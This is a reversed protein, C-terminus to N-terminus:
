PLSALDPPITREGALARAQALAAPWAAPNRLARFVRLQLLATEFDRTAWGAVGEAVVSARQFDRQRMLWAVYSQTVLVLDAPVREREARALADEFAARAAPAPGDAVREAHALAAYLHATPADDAAAWAQLGALTTDAAAAKDQALQARLLTLRVLGAERPLQPQPLPAALAAAAEQEALAANGDVLAQRAAIAQARALATADGQAEADSRVQALLETAAQRLGNAFLAEVRVLNVARRRLPDPVKDVLDRLQAESALAAAPDLLALQVQTLNARAHLEASYAHFMAFRDAAGVLIPAAEAFRDRDLASAGANSDVVALGLVDGATALAIRAQALDAQAAAYDRKAAHAAARNNYAKGLPSFAREHALLEIARDLDPMAADPQDRQLEIAALANLTRAHLVPDASVPVDSALARLTARAADFNGSLFEARGRQFRLLPQDRQAPPAGDLLQRASDVREELLAAEIQQILSDASPDGGTAVDGRAPALGLAAGLRDSAVRAAVLVDDGEGSVALAPSPGRLTHLTVRWHGELAEARADVVLAADAARALAALQEPDVAAREYARALGVVNDSPVVEQGHARLRSAVLDMVGLRIWSAETDGVVAVPLVLAAKGPSAAAAAPAEHRGPWLRWGLPLALACLVLLAAARWRWRAPATPLTPSSPPTPSPALDPTPLTPSGELPAPLPAAPAPEPETEAADGTEVPALWHYGFRVVTRIVQQEKGTDDLARRALLITQGLVGDAVDVKGWVAAILEDRGVARERHELLYVICDFVKPPLAVPEDGRWLARTATELRFRGFRYIHLSM